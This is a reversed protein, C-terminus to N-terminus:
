DFYGAKDCMEKVAEAFISRSKKNPDQNTNKKELYYGRLEGWYDNEKLWDMREDLNEFAGGRYEWSYYNAKKNYRVYQQGDESDRVIAFDCSHRITSRSRNVKKMTLVRTSDECNEYGYRRAVRDIARKLIRRLDEASFCEEEDNVYINVDFDFGINSRRDCTIMNINPSSSGVFRFQFTFQGRVQDQVELLIKHIEEWVPRAEAKTVYDFHYM